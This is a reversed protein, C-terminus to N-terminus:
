DGIGELRNSIGVQQVLTKSGSNVELYIEAVVDPRSLIAGVGEYGTSSGFFVERSYGPNLPPTGWSTIAFSEWEGLVEKKDVLEFSASVELDTIPNDSINKIMLRIYPVVLAVGGLVNPDETWYTRVNSIQVGLNKAADRLTREQEARASYEGALQKLKQEQSVTPPPATVLFNEIQEYADEPDPVTQLRAMLQATRKDYQRIEADLKAQKEKIKLKIARGREKAGGALPSHPFLAVLQEYTNAAQELDGKDELNIGATWYWQDTRKLSAIKERSVKLEQELEHVRTQLENIRETDSPSSECAIVVGLSLTALITAVARLM